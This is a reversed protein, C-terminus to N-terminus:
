GYPLYYTKGERDVTDLDEEFKEALIMVVIVIM